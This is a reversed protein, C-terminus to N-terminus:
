IRLEKGYKDYVKIDWNLVNNDLLKIFFTTGRNKILETRIKGSDITLENINDNFIKGIALFYKEGDPTKIETGGAMYAPKPESVPQFDYFSSIREWTWGKNDKSMYAAGLANNLNFIIIKNGDVPQEYLIDELSAGTSQLGLEVVKEYKVGKVRLPNDTKKTSTTCYTFIIIFSVLAIPLITKRYRLNIGGTM